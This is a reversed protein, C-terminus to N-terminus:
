RNVFFALSLWLLSSFLRFNAKELCVRVPDLESHTRAYVVFSLVAALTPVSFAVAQNFARIFLLSRIGKMEQRRIKSLRKLFPRETVFCKIIRMSGLLERLLQSREDTWKQM